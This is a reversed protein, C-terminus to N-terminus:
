GGIVNRAVISLMVTDDDHSYVIAQAHEAPETIGRQAFGILRCQFLLRAIESRKIEDRRQAPHALVDNM